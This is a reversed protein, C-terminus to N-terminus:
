VGALNRIKPEDLRPFMVVCAAISKMRPSWTLPYAEISGAISKQSHLNGQEMATVPSDDHVVDTHRRLCPKYSTPWVAPQYSTWLESGISDSLWEHMVGTAPWSLIRSVSCFSPHRNSSRLCIVCIEFYATYWRMKAKSLDVNFTCVQARQMADAMNMGSIDWGGIVLEEPKVMPLMGSFPVHVEEGKFNGVRCTAAQTISGYYNPQKRGEKTM